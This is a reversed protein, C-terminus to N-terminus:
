FQVHTTKKRVDFDKAVHFEQSRAQRRRGVKVM